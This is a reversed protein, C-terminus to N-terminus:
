MKAPYSLGATMVEAMDIKPISTGKYKNPSLVPMIVKQAVIKSAQSVRPALNKSAEIFPNPKDPLFSWDQIEPPSEIDPTEIKKKDPLFDWNTIPM